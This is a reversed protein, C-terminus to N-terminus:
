WSIWGAAKKAGEHGSETQARAKPRFETEPAAPRRPRGAPRPRLPHLAEVALAPRHPRHERAEIVHGSSPRLRSARLCRGGNTGYAAAEARSPPRSARGVRPRRCSSWLNECSRVPAERPYKPAFIIERNLGWFAPIALRLHEHWTRRGNGRGKWHGGRM